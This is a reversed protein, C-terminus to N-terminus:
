RLGARVVTRAAPCGGGLRLMRDTPRGVAV